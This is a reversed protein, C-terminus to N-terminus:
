KLVSVLIGTKFEGFLSQVNKTKTIKSVSVIYGKGYNMRQRM